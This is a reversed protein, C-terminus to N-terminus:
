RAPASAGGPRTSASLLDWSVVRDLQPHAVGRHDRRCLIANGALWLPAPFQRQRLEVPPRGLCERACPLVQLPEREPPLRQQPCFRSATVIAWPSHLTYRFGEPDPHPLGQTAPNLEVRGVRLERLVPAALSSVLPPERLSVLLREGATRDLNEAVLRPIRPDVRVGSLMRGLVPELREHRRAVTFLVGWDNAIVETGDALSALLADIRHLEPEPVLAPTVLAFGLGQDALLRGTRHVLDPSPLLRCCTEHGLHLGSASALVVRDLLRRPGARVGPDILRTEPKM